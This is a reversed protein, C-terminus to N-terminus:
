INKYVKFDCIQRNVDFNLGTSCSFSFIENEICLYYKACLTTSWIHAADRNPNRYFKDNEICPVKERLANVFQSFYICLITQFLLLKPSKTLM